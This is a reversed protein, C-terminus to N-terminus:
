RPGGNFLGRPFQPSFKLNYNIAFAGRSRGTLEVGITGSPTTVTYVAQEGHTRSAGHVNMKVVTPTANTFEVQTGPPLGEYQATAMVHEGRVLSTQRATVSFTYVHVTQTPSTGLPTQVYATQPGLAPADVFSTMERSSAALTEQARNGVVLISDSGLNKGPITAATGNRLLGLTPVEPRTALTPTAATTMGAGSHAATTAGTTSTTVTSAGPTTTGVTTPGAGTAGVTPSGTTTPGVTTPGATTTGGTTTGVTSSGTTSTGLSSTGVTSTGTTTTGTTTAGLSSTGVTSVGSTPAGVTTTGVTTGGVTPTTPTIKTTAQAVVNGGADLAKITAVLLSAGGGIAAINLLAHGKSDTRAETKQGNAEASVVVGEITNAGRVTVLMQDQSSVEGAVFIQPRGALATVSLNTAPAPPPLPNAALVSTAPTGPQGTPTEQKPAQSTEKPGCSGLKNLLDAIEDKIAQITLADDELQRELDKRVSMIHALSDLVQGRLDENVGITPKLDAQARAVQKNVMDLADNLAQMEASVRGLYEQLQEIDQKIKACDQETGQQPLPLAQPNTRSSITLLGSVLAFLGIVTARRLRKHKRM